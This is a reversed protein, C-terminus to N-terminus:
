KVAVVESSGIRNPASINSSKAIGDTVVNAGVLNAIGTAEIDLALNDSMLRPVDAVGLVRTVAVVYHISPNTTRAVINETL